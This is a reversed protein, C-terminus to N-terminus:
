NKIFINLDNLENKILPNFFNTNEIALYRNIM